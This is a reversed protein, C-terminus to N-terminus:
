IEFIETISKEINVVFADTPLDNSERGFPDEIEEAIVELSTLAYFVFMTIPILWYGFDSILGFPLTMTYVFIFKKIFLSYSYPIPSNKIRECAGTIDTFSTLEEKIMFLQDGTIKKETYFQNFRNFILMAIQNPIHKKHLLSNKDFGVCEKLHNDSQEKRLHHKLSMSFNAIMTKLYEHDEQSLFSRAKLALNRSNNILAGWLKRAEWWRDYATNTRFVLLLSIVFGLLSHLVMSSKPKYELFELFFYSIFGSYVGLCVMAPLLIRFTDSKHFRFILGFWEKPNYQVM